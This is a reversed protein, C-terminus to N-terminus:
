LNKVLKKTYMVCTPLESTYHTVFILSCGNRKVLADIISKVRRKRSGDLGHLPEDLVLLAPQKILARAVLVLRQEGASLETFRRASLMEIGLLEMWKHAVATEGETMPKFKNLSNRMGQVVIEIVTSSSRFYLQMEPSVYGICDKIEWVSEGTGRRRGFLTIDNAYAQPNDACILSLLLSKGCGNPGTLSWCEGRRVCWDVGSLIERTGYRVHGNRIQFTIEHNAIKENKSPRAPIAEPTFDDESINCRLWEIEKHETHLSSIACQNMVIVADTYEPIDAGDCLLLMVSVGGAVVKTITTDFEGRSAVDLGIYPNDLILVDPREILANILLLKRLEGSSLYNVKKDLVDDLALSETLSVWQSNNVKNGMVESVTPVLDNMTAEMRQEYYQVEMGSLAHIDTFSLMKVKIKEDAFCLRNGYAYRGKELITGLTTKGSGNEGLVVTVGKVVGLRHPNHLVINGYGLRESEFGIIYEKEKM